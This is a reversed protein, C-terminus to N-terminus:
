EKEDRIKEREARRQSKRGRSKWREMNNSTLSRFKRRHHYFSTVVMTEQLNAKLGHAM